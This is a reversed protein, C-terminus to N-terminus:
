AELRPFLADGRTTRTGPALRGSRAADPLRQAALPEAIGLQEWLRAATSPMAPLILVALLRLCDVATYLVASLRERAAPDSPTLIRKCVDYAILATRAPDIRETSTTM